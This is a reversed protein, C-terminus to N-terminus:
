ERRIRPDLVGYLLDVLLNIAVFTLALVFVGAQVVPYDRVFISQVALRGVGPWAFITETVVAGGLLTGFQLGILTVVPVAANRLAHALIVTWESLGKARATVVFPQGLVELMSTRTLRALSAAFHTGLTIAPLVLRQWGGRGSTPLWGLEVSVILILMIGMWFYPTAQGVVAFAMALVDVVRGRHVAALVGLPLAVALALLLAAGALELTAPLRELVLPLAPQQHRFSTGFDGTLAGGLFQGYQVWVPQDLGLTRRLAVLEEVSSDGPLMTSAPDGSLRLAAFVLTAVGFAVFATHLIKRVLYGLM